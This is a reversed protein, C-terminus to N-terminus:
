GTKDLALLYRLEVECRARMLAFESFYDGLGALRDKYRGDLPSIEDYV